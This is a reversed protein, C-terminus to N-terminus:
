GRNRDYFSSKELKQRLISKEIEVAALKQRLISMEAVSPIKELKQWLDSKKAIYCFKKSHLLTEQQAIFNGATCQLQRRHM